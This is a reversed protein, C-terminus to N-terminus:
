NTGRSIQNDPNDNFAKVEKVMREYFEAANQAAKENGEERAELADYRFRAEQIALEHALRNFSPMRCKWGGNKETISMTRKSLSDLVKANADGISEEFKDTWKEPEMASFGEWHEVIWNAVVAHVMLKCDDIKPKEGVQPGLKVFNDAFLAATGKFSVGDDAAKDHWTEGLPHHGKKSTFPKIILIRKLFDYGIAWGETLGRKDTKAKDVMGVLLMVPRPTKRKAQGSIFKLLVQIDEKDKLQILGEMLMHDLKGSRFTAAFADELWGEYEAKWTNKNGNELKEWLELIKANKEEDDVDLYLENAWVGYVKKKHEPDAENVDAYVLIGGEGISGYSGLGLVNNNLCDRLTESREAYKHVTEYDYTLLDLSIRAASEGVVAYDETITDFKSDPIFWRKATASSM